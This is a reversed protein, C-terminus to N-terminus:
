LESFKYQITHHYDRDPGFICSPFHSHNPGDPYYQPEICFGSNPGLTNGNLDQINPIWAGTYFQFSPLTSFVELQISSDHNQVEAHKSLLDSNSDSIIFCDDYDQGNLKSHRSFRNDEVSKGNPVMNELLLREHSNFKFHHNTISSSHKTNLNFYPHHTLSLPTNQDAKGSYSIQIINDILEFCVEFEVQGPFGHDGDPSTYLFVAKLVSSREKVYHWDVRDLGHNGHLANGESCTPIQYHQDGIAFQGNKIRNAYRGVISGCFWDQKSYEDYNLSLIANIWQDKVNKYKLDLFTCGKSDIRASINENKLHAIM